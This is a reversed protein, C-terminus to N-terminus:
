HGKTNSFILSDVTLQKAEDISYGKKVWDSLRTAISPLSCGIEAALAVFSLGMDDILRKTLKQETMVEIEEIFTM